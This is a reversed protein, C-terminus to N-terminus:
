SPRMVSEVSGRGPSSGSGSHAVSRDAALSCGQGALTWGDRAAPGEFDLTVLPSPPAAAPSGIAPAAAPPPQASGIAALALLATAFARAM